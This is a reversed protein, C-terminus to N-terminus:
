VASLVRGHYSHELDLVRRIGEAAAKFDPKEQESIEKLWFALDTWATGIEDMMEPLGLAAIRPVYRAAERLFDAYMKRFGGGGTGRREIVQYCFRAAWQWDPLKGWQVIKEGWKALATLGEYSTACEVMMRSNDVVADWILDPLGDPEALSATWFLNGVLKLFLGRGFRAKRMDDFSVEFTEQWGTDTVYFLKKDPDYSWVTIAHGPFHTSSKFYPLYRIDTQAIVPLGRDLLRCLEREGEEPDSFSREVSPYGIRKFFRKELDESRVHIFRSPSSGPFNIFYFGLGAGLGFCLDESWQLGQYNVLNCLATSTCHRGPYHKVVINM